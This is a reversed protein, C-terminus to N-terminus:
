LCKIVADVIDTINPMASQVISGDSLHKHDSFALEPKHRANDYRFILQGDANQYQYAYSIIEIRYKADAYVKVHLVSGDVLHIEAHIAAQKAARIEEKIEISEAFGYDDIKEVAQHFFDLYDRLSM